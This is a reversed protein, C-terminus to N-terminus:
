GLGLIDAIAAAAADTPKPDEVARVGVLCTVAVWGAAVVATDTGAELENETARLELQLLGEANSVMAAQVTGFPALAAPRAGRLEGLPLNPVNVNLVTQEPADLLWDVAATAVAAATDLWSPEGVDISVALGKVGFNAATLAAGVTGSHMVARGTNCGPNIGSVVVDPPAGFGGLRAAMVALGPPGDVGHVSVRELDAISAVSVRIGEGTHVPGIAAGSGSRDDLPAAVVVDFGDFGAMARALVALGPAGVGDDNTVLVRTM